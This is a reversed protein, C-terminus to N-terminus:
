EPKELLYFNLGNDLELVAYVTQLDSAFEVYGDSIASVTMDEDNGMGSFISDDMNVEFTDSITGSDWMDQIYQNPM